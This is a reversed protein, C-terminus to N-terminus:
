NLEFEYDALIEEHMKSPREYNAGFTKAKDCGFAYVTERESIQASKMYLHDCHKCDGGCKMIKTQEKRIVAKEKETWM